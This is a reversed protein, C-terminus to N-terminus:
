GGANRRAGSRRGAARCTTRGPRSDSQCGRAPRRAGHGSLHDPEGALALGVGQRRATVEGAGALGTEAVGAGGIVLGEDLFDGAAAGPALGYVRTIGARALPQVADDGVRSTRRKEIEQWGGPQHEVDTGAPTLDGAGQCLVAGDDGQFRDRFAQGKDAGRGGLIPDGIVKIKEFRIVEFGSEDIVKIGDTGDAHELPGPCKLYRSPQGSSWM